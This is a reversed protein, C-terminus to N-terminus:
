FFQAKYQCASHFRSALCYIYFLLQSFGLRPCFNPTRSSCRRELLHIYLLLNEITISLTRLTSMQLLKKKAVELKNFNNSYQM